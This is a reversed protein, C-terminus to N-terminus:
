GRARDALIMRKLAEVGVKVAAEVEHSEDQPLGAADRKISAGVTSLFEVIEDGTLGVGDDTISLGEGGVGAPTITIGTTRFGAELRQRATIADVGNQILERLYVQPTSYIATSLLDVIGRLDVRFNEVVAPYRRVGLSVTM